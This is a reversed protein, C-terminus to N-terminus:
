VVSKRDLRRIHGRRLHQRPSAHTGGLAASRPETHPVEVTLCWTEHLPTKGNAIRRQNVAPDVRQICETKVNACALAECLDMVASAEDGVDHVFMQTAAELGYQQIAIEAVEAMPLGVNIAIKARERGISDKPGTYLQEIIRTNEPVDDWTQPIALCATSPMWASASDFWSVAMVIVCREDGPPRELQALTDDSYKAEYAIAIRKSAPAGHKDDPRDVAIHSQDTRYEVTIVEFPLRLERNRLGRLGDEFLRGGEPLVFHQAKRIHEILALTAEASRKYGFRDAWESFKFLDPVCQSSYNLASCREM